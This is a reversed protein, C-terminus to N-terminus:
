GLGPPTDLPETTDLAIQEWPEGRKAARVMATASESLVKCREHDHALCLAFFHAHKRKHHLRKAWRIWHLSARMAAHYVAVDCPDATREWERLRRRDEVTERFIALGLHRLVALVLELAASM